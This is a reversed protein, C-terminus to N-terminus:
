VRKITYQLPHSIFAAPSEELIVKQFEFYSEKRKQLDITRRADELLKDVKPSKFNTINEARTSHWFVYQDPDPPIQQLGLFIEYDGPITNVIEIQVEVPLNEEWARKIEEAMLLFLQSTHITLQTKNETEGELLSLAHEPDYKYEKVNENYAWSNPSVPGLARKEGEPKNPISYTLSQRFNKDQLKPNDTNYFVAIFEDKSIKEEVMINEQWEEEFPNSLLGQIIDIEGLKFAKKITDTNSYFRYTIKEGPKSIVMKEVTGSQKNIKDLMYPGSGVLGEKFIPESLAIPFPAFPEKLIFKITKDDLVRKEVNQFQYDIEDATIPQGDSWFINDKLIFLYEKGDDSVTWKKALSSIPQKDEGIMTLGSGLQKLIDDPLQDPDYIGVRGIREHQTMQPLQKLLRPILFAGAVGIIIGIIIIKKHKEVLGEILWFYSRIKKFASM